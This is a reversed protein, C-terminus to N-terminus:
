IKKVRAEELQPLTLDQRLTCRACFIILNLLILSLPQFAKLPQEEEVDKLFHDWLRQQTLNGSDEGHPLSLQMMQLMLCGFAWIDAAPGYEGAFLLTILLTRIFM